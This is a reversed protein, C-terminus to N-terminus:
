GPLTNRTTQLQTSSSFGPPFGTDPTHGTPVEGRGRVVQAKHHWHNPYQPIQDESRVSQQAQGQQHGADMHQM